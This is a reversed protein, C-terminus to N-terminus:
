LCEVVDGTWTRWMGGRREWWRTRLIHWRLLFAALTDSHRVCWRFCTRWPATSEAVDMRRARRVIAKVRGLVEHESVPPDDDVLADGRTVWLREGGQQLERVVRHAYFQGDRRTLVVQGCRVREGPDRRVLLLDGPYIAPIMSSGLAAFRLGGSARVVQTALEVKVDDSVGTASAM